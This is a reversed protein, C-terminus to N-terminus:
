WRNPFGGTSRSSANGEAQCLWNPKLSSKMANATCLPLAHRCL